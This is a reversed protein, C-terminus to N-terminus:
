LILERLTRAFTHGDLLALSSSAGPGRIKWLGARNLVLLARHPGCVVDVIGRAGIRLTGVPRVWVVLEGPLAIKLAPADYAGVDDEGVHVTAMDIRALGEHVAPLLWARISRMLVDVSELWRTRATSSDGKIADDRRKLERLRELFEASANAADGGDVAVPITDTPVPAM